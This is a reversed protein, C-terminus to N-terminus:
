FLTERLLPDLLGSCGAPVSLDGLGALDAPGPLDPLGALGAPAPLDSLGALGAPGPLDSLGALDSLGSVASAEAPFICFGALLRFRRLARLFSLSSRFLSVLFHVVTVK